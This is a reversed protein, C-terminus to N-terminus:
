ADAPKSINEPCEFLIGYGTEPKGGILWAMM